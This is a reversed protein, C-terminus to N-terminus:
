LIDAPLDSWQPSCLNLPPKKEQFTYAMLVSVVNLLFNIGRRHRTPEVQSINKRQDYITEIIARQPLMLQDFVDMLKHNMKKRIKTVWQVGDACLLDFSKPSIYGKDGYM